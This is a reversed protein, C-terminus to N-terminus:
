SLCWVISLVFHLSAVNKCKILDAPLGLNSLLEVRHTLCEPAICLQRASGEPDLNGADVQGELIFVLPHLFGAPRM